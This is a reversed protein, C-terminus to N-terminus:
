NFWAPAFLVYSNSTMHATITYNINATKLRVIGLFFSYILLIIIPFIQNYQFHFLTFLISSIGVAGINGFKTLSIRQFLWGRFIIEEVLPGIICIAVVALITKEYSSIFEKVELTFADSPVNTLFFFTDFSFELFVTLVMVFLLYILKVKKFKLYSLLEGTSNCGVAYILLPFFLIPSLISAGLMIMVELQPDEAEYINLGNIALVVSVVFSFLVLPAFSLAICWGFISFNLNSKENCM